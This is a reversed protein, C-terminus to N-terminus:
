SPLDKRLSQDFEKTATIDLLTIGVGDIVNDLRRCPMTWVTFWRGDTAPIEKESFTLTSM